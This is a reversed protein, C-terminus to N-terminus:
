QIEPDKSNETLMICKYVLYLNHIISIDINEWKKIPEVKGSGGEERAKETELDALTNDATSPDAGITEQKSM